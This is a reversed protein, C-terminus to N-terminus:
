DPRLRADKIKQLDEVDVTAEAVTIAADQTLHFTVTVLANLPEGTGRLHGSIWVKTWITFPDGDTIVDGREVTMDPVAHQLAKATFRYGAAGRSLMLVVPDQPTPSLLTEFPAGNLVFQAKRDFLGDPLDMKRANFYALAQDLADILAQPAAM